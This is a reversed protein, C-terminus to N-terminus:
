SSLICCFEDQYYARCYVPEFRVLSWLNKVPSYPVVNVNGVKVHDIKVKALQQKTGILLFGTKDENLLLRNDWMWNRIVQVCLEIVANADLQDMEDEPNFSVYLQTGDAYCHGSPSHNQVVDILSSSCITFLLPGLCSGQLIGCSLNLNRRNADAFLFGSVADLYIHRSGSSYM